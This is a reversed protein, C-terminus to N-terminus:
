KSVVLLSRLSLNEGVGELLFICLCPQKERIASIIIRQEMRPELVSPAFDWFLMLGMSRAANCCILFQRISIGEEDEFNKGLQSKEEGSGQEDKAPTVQEEELGLRTSMRVRPVPSEPEKPRAPEM